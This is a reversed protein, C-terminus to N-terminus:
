STETHTLETLSSSCQRCPPALSVMCPDSITRCQKIMASLASGLFEPRQRTPTHGEADQAKVPTSLNIAASSSVGILVITRDSKVGVLGCIPRSTDVCEQQLPITRTCLSPHLTFVHHISSVSTFITQYILFADLCCRSPLRQRRSTLPVGHEVESVFFIEARTGEPKDGSLCGRRQVIGNNRSQLLFRVQSRITGKDNLDPM